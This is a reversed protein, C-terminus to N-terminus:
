APTPEHCWRRQQRPMAPQDGLMPGVRARGSTRRDGGVDTSQDQPQSPVVRSPTVATNLAFRGPESVAHPLARDAPDEGSGTQRRCWSARTRTPLLEEALLCMAQERAIEEM